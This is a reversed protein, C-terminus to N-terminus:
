EKSLFIGLFDVIDTDDNHMYTLSNSQTVIWYIASAQADGASVLAQKSRVVERAYVLRIAAHCRAYVLQIAAHCRAYVLRIAAHCRAYVLRIAAHCRAYVLQIVAHCRAYVLRIAAHCRM